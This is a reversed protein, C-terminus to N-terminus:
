TKVPPPLPSPIPMPRPTSRLTRRPLATEQITIQAEDQLLTVAEQALVPSFPTLLLILGLCLSKLFRNPSVKFM